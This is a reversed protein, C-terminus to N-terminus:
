SPILRPDPVDLSGYRRRYEQVLAVGHLAAAIHALIGYWWAAGFLVWAWVVLAAVLFAGAPAFRLYM